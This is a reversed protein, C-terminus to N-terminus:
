KDSTSETMREPIAREFSKALREQTKIYLAESLEGKRAPAQAQMDMIQAVGTAEYRHFGLGMLGSAPEPESAGATAAMVMGALVVTLLKM